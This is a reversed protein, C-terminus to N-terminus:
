KKKGLIDVTSKGLEYDREDAILFAHHSSGEWEPDEIVHIGMKGLVEILDDVAMHLAEGSARKIRHRKLLNNYKTFHDEEYDEVIREYHKEVSDYFREKNFKPM